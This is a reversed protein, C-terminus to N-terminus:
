QTTEEVTMLKAFSAANVSGFAGLDVRRGTTPDEVSLRGDAWRVLRFPVQPGQDNRVRERVLGRLVIRVFGDTGPSLVGITRNSDAAIVSVGGDQRDEFRLERTVVPKSDAVRTVGIGSVRSTLAALITFTVVAAAAFLTSRPFRRDASM